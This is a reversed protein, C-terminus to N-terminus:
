LSTFLLQLMEPKEGLSVGPSEKAPMTEAFKNLSSTTVAPLDAAPAPNKDKKKEYSVAKKRNDKVTKAEEEKLVVNDTKSVTGAYTSYDDVASGSVTNNAVTNNNDFREASKNIKAEAVEDELMMEEAAFVDNIKEAGAVERNLQKENHFSLSDMQMNKQDTSKETESLPKEENKNFDVPTASKDADKLITEGTTKQEEKNQALESNNVTYTNFFLLGISLVVIAAASLQFAPTTFFNKGEPFFATRLKRIRGEKEASKGEVSFTRSFEAMLNAKIDTTPIIEEEESFNMRISLLTNRLENYESESSVQELAFQKETESLEGFSKHILMSEIDHPNYTEYNNEMPM